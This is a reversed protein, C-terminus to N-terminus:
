EARKMMEKICENIAIVRRAGRYGKTKDACIPAVRRMEEQYPILHPPNKGKKSPKAVLTYGNILGEIKPM